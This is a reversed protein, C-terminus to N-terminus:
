SYFRCRILSGVQAIDLVSSIAHTVPGAVKVWDPALFISDAVAGGGDGEVYYLDALGDGNFDGGKVRSFDLQSRQFPTTAINTPAGTNTISPPSTDQVTWGFTTPAMCRDVSNCETISTIRSMQNLPDAEYAMKWALIKEWSEPEGAAPQTFTEIKALRYIDTLEVGNLFKRAVDPRLEYEFSIRNYPALSARENGTYLAEQLLFAGNATDSTYKYEVYNTSEDMRRDM